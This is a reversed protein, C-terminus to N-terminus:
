SSAEHVGFVVARREFFVAAGFLVSTFFLDGFLGNWFFPLAMTYCAALGAATKPYLGQAVWVGFNTVVFFILSCLLSAASLISLTLRGKLLAGLLVVMALAGYVYPTTVDFGILADSLLMVSLVVALATIRNGFKAAGFLAMATVPTVNPIHPLLRFAAATLVVLLVPVFRSLDDRKFSLM